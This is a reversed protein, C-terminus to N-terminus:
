GEQSELIFNNYLNTMVQHLQSIVGKFQAYRIYSLHHKTLLTSNHLDTEKKLNVGTLKKFSKYLESYVLGADEKKIKAKQCYKFILDKIDDVLQDEKYAKSQMKESINILKTNGEIFSLQATPNNDSSVNSVKKDLEQIKLDFNKVAQELAETTEKKISESEQKIQYFVKEEQEQFGKLTIAMLEMASLEKKIPKFNQKLSQEMQNFQNIYMEKFQVAKSGTLGMAIMSFGDRTLVFKIFEKNQLNTYSSVQFNLYRFEKSCDLNKILELINFHKREFISAIMLSDTFFKGEKEFVLDKIEYNPVIEIEPINETKVNELENLIEEQFGLISINSKNKNIRSCDAKRRTNMESNMFKSVNSQHWSIGSSTKLNNQNLLEALETQNLDLNESIIKEILDRNSKSIRMKVRKEKTVSM